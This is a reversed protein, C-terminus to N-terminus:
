KDEILEAVYEYADFCMAEKVKETIGGFKGGFFKVAFLAGGIAAAIATQVALMKLFGSKKGKKEAPKVSKISENVAVTAEVKNIGDYKNMDDGWM